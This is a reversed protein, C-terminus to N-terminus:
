PFISVYESTANIEMYGEDLRMFTKGSVFKM